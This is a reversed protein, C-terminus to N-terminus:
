DEATWGLLEEAARESRDPLCCMEEDTRLDVLGTLGLQDAAAGVHAEANPGIFPIHRGHPAGLHDAWSEVCDCGVDERIDTDRQVAVKLALLIRAADPGIATALTWEECIHETM